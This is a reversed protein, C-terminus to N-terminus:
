VAGQPEATPDGDVVIRPISDIVRVKAKSLTKDGYRSSVTGSEHGQIADVVVPDAGIDRGVTKFRHRWAHNPQVAEDTVGAKERVFERLRNTLGRLPGRVDGNAAVKIFLHGPPSAQVFDAFGLAVLHEHLPVERAEGTKVTGAEPTITVVWRGDEQRIDERRLQGMEGVRAGTYACLWPVWRKAAHTRATDNGREVHLAAQLIQAAEADTFGKPRTVKRKGVKMTLGAAPNSPLLRNVVAWGLVAKLGALDSDKITKASVRRGTRPDVHDLRHNKYAVVDEPTLRSADDHGLFAVLRNITGGYSELTRPSRGASQAEKWWAELLGTLTVKAAGNRAGDAYGGRASAANAAPKLGAQAQAAVTPAWAPFSARREDPAYDGEAHRSLRYHAAMFDPELSDFFAERSAVSLMIGEEALFTEIHGHEALFAHIRRRVAPPRDGQAGEAADRHDLGWEDLDRLQDVVMGWGEPDTGPEDEHRGVFWAYWRGVLARVEKHTLDAPQSRLRAWERAVEAARVAHRIRAEAPDKTRLSQKEMRRGLVPQLDAPIAKRFYYTGTEPHKWPRSMALPM